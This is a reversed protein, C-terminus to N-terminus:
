DHQVTASAAQMAGFRGNVCMSDASEPGNSCNSVLVAGEYSHQQQLKFTAIRALVASPAPVLGFLVTLLLPNGWCDLDRLLPLACNSQEAPSPLFGDQPMM